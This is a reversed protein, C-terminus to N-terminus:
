THGEATVRALNLASNYRETQATFWETVDHGLSCGSAKAYAHLAECAARWKAVGDEGGLVDRMIAARNAEDLGAKAEKMASM